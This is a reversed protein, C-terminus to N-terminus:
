DDRAKAAERSAEGEGDPLSEVGSEPAPKDRNSGKVTPDNVTGTSPKANESSAPTASSPASEPGARREEDEPRVVRLYSPRKKQQSM